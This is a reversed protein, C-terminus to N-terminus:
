NYILQTPQHIFTIQQLYKIFVIFGFNSKDSYGGQLAAM